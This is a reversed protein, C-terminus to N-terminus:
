QYNRVTPQLNGFILPEKHSRHTQPQYEWAAVYSCNEDQRQAEGTPTQFETRFHAGCSEQRELADTAMLDGLELFDAVRGALELDKNM